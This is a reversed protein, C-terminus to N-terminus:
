VAPRSHSMKEGMSMDMEVLIPLSTASDVWVTVKVDGMMGGLFAPDTTEFGEVVVGDIVSRGLETYEAGAMQRIMERPDNSQKKMRDLLEDTLEMRIYKKLEPMIMFMAKEEPLVYMIQTTQEGSNSDTMTMEMKMGLDTSIIITAEQEMDRVPTGPMMEGTVKMKMKYMFAHAQEVRELVDALAVGSSTIQSIGILATIIIVAVAALKPIRSKMITRWVGVTHATPQLRHKPYASLLQKKLSDRHETEPAEFPIDKVFEEIYKENDNM